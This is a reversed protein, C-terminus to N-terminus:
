HCRAVWQSLPSLSKMEPIPTMGWLSESQHPPSSAQPRWAPGLVRRDSLQSECSGRSFASKSMEM